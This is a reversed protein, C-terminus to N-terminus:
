GQPPTRSEIVANRSSGDPREYTVKVPRSDADNVFAGRVVSASVQRGDALDVIVPKVDRGALEAVFGYVIYEGAKTTVLGRGIDDVTPDFCGGASQAPATESPRRVAVDICVGGDARSYRYATWSAGAVTTGFGFAVPQGVPQAGPPEEAVHRGVGDNSPSGIAVGIGLAGLGM